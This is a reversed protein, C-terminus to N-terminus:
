AGDTAGNKKSGYPADSLPAIRRARVRRIRRRVVQDVVLELGGSELKDGPSPVRGLESYIFGGLTEGADKPLDADAIQNVDDLDIGGSFIYEGDEVQQYSAEEAFDYEDRIEGVIEEVIDEITVLGATGGYEDVVIALHFRSDQMEELLDDVKKAEPVFFAERMLEGIPREYNGARWADLLDKVYILGIVNDISERFVPARSYGTKLLLDTAKPIPTSEELAQIDIRPIMVERALTDDLRFISYIMDKEDQEISGGEEGADVLTMIEAETVLTHLPGNQNASVEGGLRLMLRVIPSLAIELVAVVPGLRLAWAEPERMVLGEALFEVISMVLGTAALTLFFGPLGNALGLYTAAAVGIALLRVIAVAIRLSLLLSLSDEVIRAALESGAAGEEVLRQLKAPRSNVLSSRAAALVAEAILLLPLLTLAFIPEIM